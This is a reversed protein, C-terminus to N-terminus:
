RKVDRLSRHFRIMGWISELNLELIEWVGIEMWDEDVWVFSFFLAVWVDRRKLGM